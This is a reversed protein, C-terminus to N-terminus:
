ARVHHHLRAPVNAAEEIPASEVKRQRTTPPSRLPEHLQRLDGSRIGDTDPPDDLCVDVGDGDQAFGADLWAGIREVSDPRRGASRWGNEFSPRQVPRLPETRTEADDIPRQDDNGGVVIAHSEDVDVDDLVVGCSVVRCGPGRGGEGVGCGTVDDEGAALDCRSLDNGRIVPIEVSWSEPVPCASRCRTPRAGDETHHVGGVPQHVVVYMLLRVDTRHPRGSPRQSGEEFLSTPLDVDNWVVSGARLYSASRQTVADLPHAAIDEVAEGPREPRSRECRVGRDGSPDGVRVEIQALMM